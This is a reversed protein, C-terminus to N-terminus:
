ARAKLWKAKTVSVLEAMIEAHEKKMIKDGLRNVYGNYIEKVLKEVDVDVLEDLDLNGIEDLKRNAGMAMCVDAHTGGHEPEKRPFRACDKLKM